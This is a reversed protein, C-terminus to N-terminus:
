RPPPATTTSAAARKKSRSRSEYGSATHRGGDPGPPHLLEALDGPEVQRVEGRNAGEGFPVGLVAARERPAYLVQISSLLQSGIYLVLLVAMGGRRAIINQVAYAIAAVESDHWLPM